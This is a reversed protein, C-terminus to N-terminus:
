QKIRRNLDDWAEDTLPRGCNSCYSTKSEWKNGAECNHCVYFDNWFCNKCSKDACIPCPEWNEKLHNEQLNEQLNEELSDVVRKYIPDYEYFLEIGDIGAIEFGFNKLWAITEKTTM